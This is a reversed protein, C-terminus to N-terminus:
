QGLSVLIRNTNCLFHFPQTCCLEIINKEQVSSIHHAHVVVSFSDVTWTKSVADTYHLLQM